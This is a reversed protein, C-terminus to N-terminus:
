PRDGEGARTGVAPGLHGAKRARSVWRGATSKPLNLHKAVYQTPPVSTVYALRYLAAVLILAEDDPGQRPLRKPLATPGWDVVNPGWEGEIVVKEAAHQLIQAVPILRLGENTVPEGKPRKQAVLNQVRFRGEQFKADLDVDYPIAPGTAHAKFSPFIRLQGALQVARVVEPLDLGYVDVTLGDMHAPYCSHILDM